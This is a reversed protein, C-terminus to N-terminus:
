QAVLAATVLMAFAKDFSNPGLFMRTLETLRPGTDVGKHSPVPPSACEFALPLPWVTSSTTADATLPAAVPRNVVGSSTGVQDDEQGAVPRGIGGPGVHPDVAADDGRQLSGLGAMCADATTRCHTQCYPLDDRVARLNRGYGVCRRGPRSTRRASCGTRQLYEHIVSAVAIGQAYAPTRSNRADPKPPRSM